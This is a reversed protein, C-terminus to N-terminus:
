KKKRNEKYSDIGKTIVVMTKDLGINGTKQLIYKIEDVRMDIHTKNLSLANEIRILNKFIINRLLENEELYIENGYVEIIDLLYRLKIKIIKKDDLYNLLNIVEEIKENELEHSVM